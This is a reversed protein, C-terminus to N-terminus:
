EYAKSNKPSCFYLIIELGVSKESLVEGPTAKLGSLWASSAGSRQRRLATEDTM